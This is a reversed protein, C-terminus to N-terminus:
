NLVCMLKFFDMYEFKCMIKGRLSLDTSINNDLRHCSGVAVDNTM